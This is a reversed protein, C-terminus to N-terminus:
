RGPYGVSAATQSSVCQQSAGVWVASGGPSSGSISVQPSPESVAEIAFLPLFKVLIHM